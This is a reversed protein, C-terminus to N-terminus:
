RGSVIVTWLGQEGNNVSCCSCALDSRIWEMTSTKLSYLWFSHQPFERVVLRQGLIIRTLPSQASCVYFVCPLAWRENWRKDVLVDRISRIPISASFACLQPAWLVFPHRHEPFGRGVWIQRGKGGDEQVEDCWDPIEGSVRARGQGTMYSLTSCVSAAFHHGSHIIQMIHTGM